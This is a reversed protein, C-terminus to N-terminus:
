AMADFRQSLRDGKKSSLESRKKKADKASERKHIHLLTPEGSELDKQFVIVKTPSVLISNRKTEVVRYDEEARLTELDPHAIEIGSDMMKQHWEKSKRVVPSWNEETFSEQSDQSNTRETIDLIDVLLGPKEAQQPSNRTGPLCCHQFMGFVM